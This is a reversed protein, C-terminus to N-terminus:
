AYRATNLFLNEQEREGKAKKIREKRCEHHHHHHAVTDIRFLSDHLRSLVVNLVKRTKCASATGSHDLNIHKKGSCPLAQVLSGQKRQKPEYEHHVQM